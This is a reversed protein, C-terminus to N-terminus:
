YHILKLIIYSVNLVDPYISYFFLRMAASTRSHFISLDIPRNQGISKKTSRGTFGSNGKLPKSVCILCCCLLVFKM